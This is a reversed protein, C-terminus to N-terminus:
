HHGLVFVRRGLVAKAAAIWDALQDPTADVYREPLPSQLRLMDTHHGETLPLESERGAPVAQDGM